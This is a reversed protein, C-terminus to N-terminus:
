PESEGTLPSNDVKMENASIIRIDAPIREGAKINVLDGVM